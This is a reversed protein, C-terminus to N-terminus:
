VDITLGDFALLVECPSVYERVLNEGNVGDWEPFLHNLLAMRPGAIKILEMAESLELHTGVPKNAVFSSEVVLLDAGKSFEGIKPDFGTDATYVVSREGDALRIALSEPKHLTKFAKASIGDLPAFAENASVEVIEVPFPQEFLRYNAARDFAVIVDRFRQPGVLRLLKRREQTAPAHKMGFLFPALGGIHDLHFHSIWIADLDAWPLGEQAMRHVASASCDLLISGKETDLWFSTSSRLPHPHSSGSGLVTLKMM